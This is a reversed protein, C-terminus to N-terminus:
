KGRISVLADDSTATGRSNNVRCTYFGRDNPDARPISYYPLTAGDIFINNRLWRYEPPPRGTALCTLNVSEFLEDLSTNTPHTTIDVETGNCEASICGNTFAMVVIIIIPQYAVVVIMYMLMLGELVAILSSPSLSLLARPYVVSVIKLM